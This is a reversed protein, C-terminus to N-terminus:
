VNFIDPMITTTVGSIVLKSGSVLILSSTPLYEQQGLAFISSFSLGGGTVKHYYFRLKFLGIVLIRRMLSMLTLYESLNSNPILNHPKKLSM